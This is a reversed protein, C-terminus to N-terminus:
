LVQKNVLSKLVLAFVDKVLPDLGDDDPKGDESADRDDWDSSSRSKRQLDDGRRFSRSKSSTSYDDHALPRGQTDFRAPLDEIEEEESDSNYRKHSNHRSRSQPRDYTDDSSRRRLIPPRRRNSPRHNETDESGSESSASDRTRSQGRRHRELTRSSKPSLPIFIVSKSSM